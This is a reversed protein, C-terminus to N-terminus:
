DNGSNLHNYPGYLFVFSIVFFEFIVRLLNGDLGDSRALYNKWKQVLSSTRNFKGKRSFFLADDIGRISSRMATQGPGARSSSDHPTSERKSDDTGAQVPQAPEHKEERAEETPVVDETKPESDSVTTTVSM